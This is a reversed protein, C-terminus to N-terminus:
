CVTRYVSSLGCRNLSKQFSQNQEVQFSVKV